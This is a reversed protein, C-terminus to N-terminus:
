MKMQIAVHALICQSPQRITFFVVLCIAWRDNHAFGLFVLLTYDLFCGFVEIQAIKQLNRPWIDWDFKESFYNESLNFTINLVLKLGFVLFITLVTKSFLILLTQNQALKFNKKAFIELDLVKWFDPETDKRGKYNGLKMCFILFIKIATVSFVAKGVLWGIIVLLVSRIPGRQRRDM